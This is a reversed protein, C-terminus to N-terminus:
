KICSGRNGHERITQIELATETENLTEDMPAVHGTSQTTTIPKESFIVDMCATTKRQNYVNKIVLM